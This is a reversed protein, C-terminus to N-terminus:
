AVGKRIQGVSVSCIFDSGFDFRDPRKGSVPPFFRNMVSLPRQQLDDTKEKM